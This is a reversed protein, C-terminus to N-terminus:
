PAPDHYDQAHDRDDTWRSSINRRKCLEFVRQGFAELTKKLNADSAREGTLSNDKWGCFYIKDAEEVNRRRSLVDHPQVRGTKLDVSQPIAKDLDAFFDSPKFRRDPDFTLQLADCLAGFDPKPLLPDIRFGPFVRLSTGFHTGIGGLLLEFPTEEILFIAEFTAPGRVFRWKYRTIGAAKMAKFLGRLNSLTIM